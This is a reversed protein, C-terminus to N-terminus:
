APGEYRHATSNAQHRRGKNKRTKEQIENIWNRHIHMTCTKWSATNM